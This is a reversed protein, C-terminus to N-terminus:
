EVNIETLELDGNELYEDIHEEMDAAFANATRQYDYSKLIEGNHLHLYNRVMAETVTFRKSFTFDVRYDIDM